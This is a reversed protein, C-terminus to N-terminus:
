FVVIDLLRPFFMMIIHYTSSAFWDFQSGTVHLAAKMGYLNGYNLRYSHVDTVKIRLGRHYKIVAYVYATKDM